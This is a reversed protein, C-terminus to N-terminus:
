FLSVQGTPYIRIEKTGGKPTQLIIKGYEESLSPTFYVTPDPPLFFVQSFNLEKFSLPSTLQITELDNSPNNPDRQHSASSCNSAIETFIIYYNKAQDFYLGYGCPKQEQWARTSLALNKTRNIDSIIKAAERMLVVNMEGSRSYVIILSSLLVLVGLAVIVEILTFAKM